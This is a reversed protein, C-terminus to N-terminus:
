GQLEEFIRRFQEIDQKKLKFVKKTDLRKEIFIENVEDTIKYCFLLEGTDENISVQYDYKGFDDKFMLNTPEARDMMLIITKIEDANEIYYRREGLSSIFIPRYDYVSLSDIRIGDYSAENSPSDIAKRPYVSILILTLGLMCILIWPLIKRKM